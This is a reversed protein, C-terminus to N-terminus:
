GRYPCGGAGMEDEDICGIRLLAKRKECRKAEEATLPCFNCSSLPDRLLVELDDEGVIYQEKKCLPSHKPVLLMESSRGYRLIGRIQEEDLGDMVADLAALASEKMKEVYPLSEESGRYRGASILAEAIGVVGSLSLAIKKTAENAYPPKFSM